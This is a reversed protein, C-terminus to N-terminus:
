QKYAICVHATQVRTGEKDVWRVKVKTYQECNWESAKVIAVFVYGIGVIVIISLILMMACWLRAFSDSM